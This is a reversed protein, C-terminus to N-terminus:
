NSGCDQSCCTRPCPMNKVDALTSSVGAASLAPVAEFGAARIVAGLTQTFSWDDGTLDRENAM